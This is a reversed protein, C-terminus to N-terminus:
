KIKIDDINCFSKISFHATEFENKGGFWEFVEKRNEMTIIESDNALYSSWAYEFAHNCFGHHVPNNHIYVVLNGLYTENDILIRKFPREFLSGHRHYLLNFYKCYANFLHSLHKTPNPVKSTVRDPGESESLDIESITKFRVSDKPRDANLPVYFGIEKEEKIRILLHFHNGMLCWAYTDAIPTIYKKYQRLFHKYNATERFIAEGNIGCNYIHYFQGHIIPETKQM